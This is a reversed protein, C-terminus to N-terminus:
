FCFFFHAYKLIEPGSHIAALVVDKDAKLENSAYNLAYGTNSVAHLVINKNERLKRISDIQDETLVVEFIDALLM